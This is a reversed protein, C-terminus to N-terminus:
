ITKATEWPVKSSKWDIEKDTNVNCNLVHEESYYNWLYRDGKNHQLHVIGTEMLMQRTLLYRTRLYDWRKMKM